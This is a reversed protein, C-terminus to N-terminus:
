FSSVTSSCDCTELGSDGEFSHAMKDVVCCMVTTCYKTNFTCNCYNYYQPSVAIALFMATPSLPIPPSIESCCLMRSTLPFQLIELVKSHPTSSDVHSTWCNSHMLWFEETLWCNHLFHRHFKGLPLDSATHVLLTLSLRYSASIWRCGPVIYTSSKALEPAQECLSSRKM